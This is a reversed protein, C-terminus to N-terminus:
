FMADSDVRIIKHDIRSDDRDSFAPLQPTPTNQLTDTDNIWRLPYAAGTEPPGLGAMTLM